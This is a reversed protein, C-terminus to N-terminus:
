KAHTYFVESDETFVSKTTTVEDSSYGVSGILGKPLLAQKTRVCHRTPLLAM